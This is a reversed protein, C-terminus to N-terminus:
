LVVAQSCRGPASAARELSPGPRRPQPTTASFDGALAYNRGSRLRQPRHGIESGSPIAAAVRRASSSEPDGWGRGKFRIGYLRWRTRPGPSGRRRVFNSIGSQRAADDYHPSRVGRSATDDRVTLAVRRRRFGFSV